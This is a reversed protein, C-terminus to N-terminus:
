RVGVPWLVRGNTCVYADAEEIYPMNERKSIDNKFAKEEM